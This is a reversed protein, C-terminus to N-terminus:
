LAKELCKEARQLGKPLDEDNFILYNNLTKITDYVLMERLDNM